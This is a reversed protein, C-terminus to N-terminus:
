RHYSLAVGVINDTYTQGPVNSNREQRAYTLAWQWHRTRQWTFAAGYNRDDDRRDLTLYTRNEGGFFLTLAMAENFSWAFDSYLGRSRQNSEALNIYALRRVFPAVSFRYRAARRGYSLRLERERYVDPSVVVGNVGSGIGLQGPLGILNPDLSLESAADALSDSVHLALSDNANPTWTATADALVGSHVGSGRRFDLRSYGLNGQLDFQAGKHTYGAYVDARDYNTRDPDLDFRARELQLNAGLDSIPDLRYLLRGAGSYRDGNFDRSVEAYNRTYRLDVQGRLADSFHARLTPGTSFVNTQQQNDPNDNALVDVPQRGVFDSVVWDLRDPSIHWAATGSMVAALQSNFTGSLYDRYEIQGAAQATLTSGQQDLRFNLYPALIDDSIPDDQSLNVNDDHQLGVGVTYDLVPKAHGTTTALLAALSLGIAHVRVTTM